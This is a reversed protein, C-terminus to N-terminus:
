ILFRKKKKMKTIEEKEGTSKNYLIYDEMTKKYLIYTDGSGMHSIHHTYNDSKIYLEKVKEWKKIKEELYLKVNYNLDEDERMRIKIERGSKDIVKVRRKKVGLATQCVFPWLLQRKTMSIFKPDDFHPNTQIARRINAHTGELCVVYVAQNDLYDLYGLYM